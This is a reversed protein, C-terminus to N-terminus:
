NFYQYKKFAIEPGLAITTLIIGSYIKRVGKNLGSRGSADVAISHSDNHRLCYFLNSLDADSFLPKVYQLSM